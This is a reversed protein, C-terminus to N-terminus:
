LTLNYEYDSEVHQSFWLIMACAMIALNQLVGAVGFEVFGVADPNMMYKIIVIALSGAIGGALFAFGIFLWTRTRWMVPDDQWAGIQGTGDEYMLHRKDVLNVISLGITACLGPVWDDFKIFVGHKPQPIPEGPRPQPVPSPLPAPTPINLRGSRICADFFLWWGGAFLAGALCVGMAHRNAQMNLPTKPLRIRCVRRTEGLGSM